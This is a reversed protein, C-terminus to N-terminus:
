FRRPNEKLDYEQGVVAMRCDAISNSDRPRHGSTPPAEVLGGPTETAGHAELLVGELM